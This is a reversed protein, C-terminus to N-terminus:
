SGARSGASGRPIRQHGPARREQLFCRGPNGMVNVFGKSPVQCLRAALSALGTSDLLCLGALFADWCLLWLTSLLTVLGWPPCLNDDSRGLPYSTLPPKILFSALFLGRGAPSRALAGRSKRTGGWQISM